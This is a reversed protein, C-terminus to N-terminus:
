REASGELMKLFPGHVLDPIGAGEEAHFSSFTLLLWPM